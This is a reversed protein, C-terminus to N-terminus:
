TGVPQGSGPGAPGVLLYTNGGAAAFDVLRSLAVSIPLITRPFNIDKILGSHAKLSAAAQIASTNLFRFSIVGIFIHLMFTPPRHAMILGFVLYYVGMFLLPDLLAWMFGLTKTRYSSTLAKQVLHYIIARARWCNRIAGIMFRRTERDAGETTTSVSALDALVGTCRGHGGHRETYCKAGEPFLAAVDGRRGRARSLRDRNLPNPVGTRGLVSDALRTRWELVDNVNPPM